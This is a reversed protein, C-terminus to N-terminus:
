GLNNRFHVPLKEIEKHFTYWSYGLNKRFYTHVKEMGKHFTNVKTAHLTGYAIV